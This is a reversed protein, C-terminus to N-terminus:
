KRIGGYIADYDLRWFCDTMEFGAAKLKEFHWALPLGQESGVWVGMLKKRFDKMDVKMIRGYAKWFSDWDDADRKEYKRTYLNRRDQWDNQIGKCGSGAHDANLFIGGPRLIQAFQKYLRSLQVPSFWHLATASIVADFRSGFTSAWKQKRLDTEVLKVRSSFRSLRKAALALLMPDFDVGCVEANPFARLVPLMLSGTGCGIDLVKSVRRQTDAILKVIIKFRENRAPIYLQQMKDWRSIWRRWDIQEPLAVNMSITETPKYM